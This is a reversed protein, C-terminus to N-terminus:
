DRTVMMLLSPLVLLSATVAMLIMVATLVGFASFLPMPAFALIAFGVISSLASALLSEGTGAGTAEIAALRDPQVTLEHRFRETFHIAYDIGIGISIAGITATVLNVSFDFVFMFAYLWAVVLLIPIVVVLGFKVSRM